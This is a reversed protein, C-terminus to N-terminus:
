TNKPWSSHSIKHKSIKYNLVRGSIKLLAAAEKQVWNVRELAQLIVQKEIEDLSIGEDPIQFEGQSGTVNKYDGPLYIDQPKIEQEAMIIAREIINELERINGPWSYAQLKKKALPHIKHIKRNMRSSYRLMFFKAMPIIDDIRDRLPPLDLRIVNLRYLLDQRFRGASIEEEIIKNTASIIRVNVQKTRSSGLREFTQEQLVRLVKAQTKLSMDAIEDLFISGGDAQEFRGIRVKDAGTFAGKEHGFLESELLEDPLAACNVRVFAKESRLSNYHILGSILEKGTGTEGLIMVSSDSKAVKEIIKLIEKFRPSEGIVEHTSFILNQQGRLNQAEFSLHKFDLAKEVKVYLEGQNFPKRVFDFAGEKIAQIVSSVDEIPSSVILMTQSENEKLLKLLSLVNGGSINIDSIIVDLSHSKIYEIAKEYNSVGEIKHGSGTFFHITRNRLNENSDIILIGAV